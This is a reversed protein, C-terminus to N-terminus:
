LKIIVSLKCTDISTAKRGLNAVSNFQRGVSYRDTILYGLVHSLDMIHLDIYSNKALFNIHHPQDQNALAFHFTFRLSQTSYPWAQFLEALNPDSAAAPAHTDHRSLAVLTCCCHIPWPELSIVSTSGVSCRVTRRLLHTSDSISYIPQSYKSSSLRYPPHCSLQHALFLALIPCGSRRGTHPDNTPHNTALLPFNPRSSNLLGWERVGQYTGGLIVVLDTRVCKLEQFFAKPLNFLCWLFLHLRKDNNNIM